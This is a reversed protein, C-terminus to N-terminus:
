PGDVFSPDDLHEPLDPRGLERLDIVTDPRKEAEISSDEFDSQPRSAREMIANPGTRPETILTGSETPPDNVVRVRDARHDRPM